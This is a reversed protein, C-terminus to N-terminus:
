QQLKAMVKETYNYVSDKLQTFSIGQWKMPTEQHGPDAWTDSYHFKLWTKFGDAKLTQSLQKVEYFVSHENIPNVWFKLRVTNIGNEKLMSLFTNQNGNLDYFISNSNSIEPSGSIDVAFIFKVNENDPIHL